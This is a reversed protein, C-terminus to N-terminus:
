LSIDLYYSANEQKMIFKSYEIIEEKETYTYRELIFLPNNKEIQLIEAEESDPLESSFYIRARSLHVGYDDKLVHFILNNETQKVDFDPCLSYSIYSYEIAVPHNEELKLRSFKYVLTESRINMKKAISSGAAELESYLLSHPHDQKNNRSEFAILNYLDKENNEATVFTGKGRQRYLLGKNVLELVARKVTITSVNFQKALERESPLQFNKEWEGKRIKEELVTQVQMYLPASIENNM